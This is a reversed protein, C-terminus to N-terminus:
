KRGKLAKKDMKIDAKKGAMSMKADIKADQKLLSKDKSSLKGKKMGTRKDM